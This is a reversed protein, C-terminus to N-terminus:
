YYEIKRESIHPTNFEKRKIWNGTEDFEYIYNFTKNFQIEKIENGKDDYECIFQYDLISDKYVSYETCNGKDDYKKIENRESNIENQEFSILNFKNRWEIMNGKIGYKYTNKECLVGNFYYSIDETMNVKEDYKYTNYFSLSGDPRYKNKETKNGNDDYKYISKYELSGDSKYENEETEKGKDDYLYKIRNNLSGDEKYSKKETMNGQNDYKYTEKKYTSIGFKYRIWETKNGKVDYTFIGVISGKPMEEKTETQTYYYETVTKVRGKLKAKTVDNEVKQGICIFGSLIAIILTLTKM